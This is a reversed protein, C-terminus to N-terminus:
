GAQLDSLLIRLLEELVPLEPPSLWDCLGNLQQRGGLDNIQKILRDAEESFTLRKHILIDTIPHDGMKGNPV